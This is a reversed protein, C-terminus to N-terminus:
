ARGKPPPKIVYTGSLWDHLGRKERDFGIWLFGLGFLAASAFYGATRVLARLASPPDGYVDIVALKLLRMGPTSGGLAQFLALYVAAIAAALGIVGLMAPDGALLLDLWADLKAGRLPPLDLHALRSALWVAVVALPGAIAVDVLAALGRRWFGAVWVPQGEDRVPSRAASRALGGDHAREEM